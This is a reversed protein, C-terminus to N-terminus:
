ILKINYNLLLSKADLVRAMSLTAARQGGECVGGRMGIFAPALRALKFLSGVGVSGALGSLLHYQEAVHLFHQLNAISQVDLLAQNKNATDLMVGYFGHQKIMRMESFDPGQDAFFVAVVKIGTLTLKQISIFFDKSQFYDNVAVKVIDVGASSYLQIDSMLAAVSEHAEGVTASIPTGGGLKGIIKRTMHIDLAGLAGVMPDKLDILDVGAERALLAEEINKVSVLLQTM